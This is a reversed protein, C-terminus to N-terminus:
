GFLQKAIGFFLSDVAAFDDFVIAADIFRDEVGNNVVVVFAQRASWVPAVNTILSAQKHKFEFRTPAEFMREVAQAM